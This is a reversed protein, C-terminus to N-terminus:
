MKFGYEMVATQFRKMYALKKANARKGNLRRNNSLDILVRFVVFYAIRAERAVTAKEKAKVIVPNRTTYQIRIEPHAAKLNKNPLRESLHYATFLRATRRGMQTENLAQHIAGDM